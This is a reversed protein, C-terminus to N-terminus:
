LKMMKSILMMVKTKQKIKNNIHIHHHHFNNDHSNNHVHHPPYQNMQQENKILRSEELKNAKM